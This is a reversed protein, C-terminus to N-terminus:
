KLKIAYKAIAVDLIKVSSHFINFNQCFFGLKKCYSLGQYHVRFYLFDILSAREVASLDVVSNNM